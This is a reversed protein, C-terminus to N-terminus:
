GRYHERTYANSEFGSSRDTFITLGATHSQDLIVVGHLVSRKVKPRGVIIGGYLGQIEVLDGSDSATRIYVDFYSRFKIKIKRM